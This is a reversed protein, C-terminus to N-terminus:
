RTMGYRNNIGPASTPNFTCFICFYLVSLFLFLILFDFLFFLVDYPRLIMRM